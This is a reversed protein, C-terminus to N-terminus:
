PWLREGQRQMRRLERPRVVHLTRLRGDPDFMAYGSLVQDGEEWQSLARWRRLSATRVEFVHPLLALIRDPKRWIRHDALLHYLTDLSIIATQGNPMPVGQQLHVRWFAEGQDIATRPLKGEAVLHELLDRYSEAGGAIPLSM